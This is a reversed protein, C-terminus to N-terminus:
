PPGGGAHQGRLVVEIQASDYTAAGLARVARPARLRVRVAALSEPFATIAGAATIGMLHFGGAAPSLLPGVVPQQVDWGSLDRTRRGLWWRGNSRYHSYRVDRRVLMPFGSALPPPTDTTVLRWRRVPVGSALACPGPAVASPGEALIASLPVPADTVQPSVRWGHVADGARLASVWQANAGPPIAVLLLQPALRECFQVVGLHERIDLTSDSLALVDAASLPALDHGLVLRAHRLERTTALRASEARATRAVRVLLVAAMAALLVSLPLAVLLEVLSTGRRARSWRSRMARM